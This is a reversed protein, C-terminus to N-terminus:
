GGASSQRVGPNLSGGSITGVAYVFVTLTLAVSFPGWQPAALALFFTGGLEAM